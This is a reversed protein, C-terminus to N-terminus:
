FLINASYAYVRVQQTNIDVSSLWCGFGPHSHYWGVVAEPRNCSHAYAYVGLKAAAGVAWDAEAHGDDENSIRPRGIRSHRYHWVSAHRFRRHSSCHIRGRIGRAYSGHGGNACWRSWTEADTCMDAETRTDM